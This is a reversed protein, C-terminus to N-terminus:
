INVYLIKKLIAGLCLIGKDMKGIGGTWGKHEYISSNEGHCENVRYHFFLLCFSDSGVKLDRVETLCSFVVYNSELFLFPFSSFFLSTRAVCFKLLNWVKSRMAILSMM